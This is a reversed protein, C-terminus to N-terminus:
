LNELIDDLSRLRIDNANPDALSAKSRCLSHLVGDEDEWHYQCFKDEWLPCLSCDVYSTITKGHPAQSCQTYNDFALTGYGSLTDEDFILVYDGDHLDELPTKITHSSSSVTVKHKM